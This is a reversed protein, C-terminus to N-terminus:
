SQSAEASQAQAVPEMKGLQTLMNRVCIVGSPHVEGISGEFVVRIPPGKEPVIIKTYHIGTAQPKEGDLNGTISAYTNTTLRESELKELLTLVHPSRMVEVTRSMSDALQPDRYTDPQAEASLRSISAERLSHLSGRIM